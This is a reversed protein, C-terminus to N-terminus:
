HLNDSDGFLWPTNAKYDESDERKLKKGGTQEKSDDIDDSGFELSQSDISQIKESDNLHRFELSQNSDEDTDELTGDLVQRIYKYLFISPKGYDVKSLINRRYQEILKLVEGTFLPVYRTFQFVVSLCWM